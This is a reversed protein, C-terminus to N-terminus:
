DKLVMEGSRFKTSPLIVLKPIGYFHQYWCSVYIACALQLYFTVLVPTSFKGIVISRWM